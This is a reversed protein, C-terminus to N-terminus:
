GKKNAELVAIAAKVVEVALGIIIKGLPTLM